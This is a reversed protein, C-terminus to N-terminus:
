RGFKYPASDIPSIQPSPRNHNLHSAACQAYWAVQERLVTWCREQVDWPMSEARLQTPARGPRRRTGDGAEFFAAVRRVWDPQRAIRTLAARMQGLKEFGTEECSTRYEPTLSQIGAQPPVPEVQLRHRSPTRPYRRTTTSRTPAGAAPLVRLMDISEETSDPVIRRCPQKGAAGAATEGPLIM